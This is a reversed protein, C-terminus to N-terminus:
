RAVLFWGLGLWLAVAVTKGVRTSDLIDILSSLTPHAMRPLSFFCLLEWAVAAVIPTMAMIWRHRRPPAGTELAGVSIVESVRAVRSSWITVVLAIVLPIGTAVDAPATFPKTFAVGLAYAVGVVALVVTWRRGIRVPPSREV